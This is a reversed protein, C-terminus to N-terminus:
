MKTTVVFFPTFDPFHTRIPMQGPGYFIVAISFTDVYFQATVTIQKQTNYEICNNTLPQHTKDTLTKSPVATYM